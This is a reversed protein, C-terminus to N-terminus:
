QQKNVQNAYISPPHQFIDMNQVQGTGPGKDRILMHHPTRLLQQLAHQCVNVVHWVVPSAVSVLALGTVLHCLQELVFRHPCSFSEPCLWM